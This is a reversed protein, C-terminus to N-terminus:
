NGGTDAGGRWGWTEGDWDIRLRRPVRALRIRVSQPEELDDALMVAVGGAWVLTFEVGRSPDDFGM